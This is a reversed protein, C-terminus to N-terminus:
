PLFPESDAFDLRTGRDDWVAIRVVMPEDREPVPVFLNSSFTDRDAEAEVALIERAPAAAPSRDAADLVQGTVYSTRGLQGELVVTFDIVRGATDPPYGDGALPLVEGVANPIALSRSFGLLRSLGAPLDDPGIPVEARPSAQIAAEYERRTAETTAVAAFDAGLAMLPPAAGGGAGGGLQTVGLIIATLSAIASIVGATAKAARSARPASLWGRTGGGGPDDSM